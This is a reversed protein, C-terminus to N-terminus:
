QGELLIVKDAASKGCGTPSSDLYAGPSNISEKRADRMQERWEKLTVAPGQRFLPRLRPPPEVHRPNLGSAFLAGLRQIPIGEKEMRSKWSPLDSAEDPPMSWGVPRDLSAALWDAMRLARERVSGPADAGDRNVVITIDHGSGEKSLTEALQKRTGGGEVSFAAIGLEGLCAREHDTFVVVVPRPDLDWPARELEEVDISAPETITRSM